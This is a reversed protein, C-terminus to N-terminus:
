RTSRELGRVIVRIQPTMPHEPGLKLARRYARLAAERKQQFQLVSGKLVWARYSRRDLRLARDAMRNADALRDTDVYVIGSLTFVAPDSPRTRRLRRLAREAEDFREAQVLAEADRVAEPADPAAVTPRMGDPSPAEDEVPEAVTATAVTATAVTATPVAVAPLGTDPPGEPGDSGGGFLLVGFLLLALLAIGIILPLNNGGVGADRLFEDDEDAAGPTRTTYPVADRVRAASDSRPPPISPDSPPTTAVPAETELTPAADARPEPPPTVAVPPAPPETPAPADAPAPAHTPAPPDTPASAEASAAEQPSTAPATGQSYASQFADASLLTPPADEHVLWESVDVQVGAGEFEEPDSEPLASTQGWGTAPMSFQSPSPKPPPLLPDQADDPGVPALRRQEFLRRLVRAVLLEDQQSDAMVQAFPRRGDCLRAVELVADPAGDELVRDLDARALAGLGGMVFLLERITDARTRAEALLPELPGWAGGIGPQPDPVTELRGGDALLALALARAGERPGARVQVRPGPASRVRVDGSIARVPGDLLLMIRQAQPAAVGAALREPLTQPDFLHEARTMRAPRFRARPTVRTWPVARM